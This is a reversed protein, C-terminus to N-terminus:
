NKRNIQCQTASNTKLRKINIATVFPTFVLLPVSLAMFLTYYSVAFSAITTAISGAFVNFLYFSACTPCIAFLSTTTGLIGLFKTRNNRFTLNSKKESRYLRFAYASSVANFGVLASITIITILNIPIILIGSTDNLYISMAPTYGLPGYQMMIVSPFNEIGNMQSIGGGFRIILTSSIIAYFVGYFLTVPLFFMSSKKETVMAFFVKWVSVSNNKNMVSPLFSELEPLLTSTSLPSHLLSNKTRQKGIHKDHNGFKQAWFRIMKHIGTIEMIIGILFLSYFLYGSFQLWSSNESTIVKPLSLPYYFVNFIIIAIGVSVLTVPWAVNPSKKITRLQELVKFFINIIQQHM